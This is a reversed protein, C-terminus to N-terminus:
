RAAAAHAMLRLMLEVRAKAPSLAGASPWDTRGEDAELIAGDGCRTARLVALGSWAADRLAQEIAAHVTGNGTAAIVIGQTGGRVLADVLAGSAGVHSHIIEV